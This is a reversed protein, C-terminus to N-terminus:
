KKKSKNDNSDSSVDVYRASVSLLTAEFLVESQKEGKAEIYDGLRVGNIAIEDTKLVRVVTQGDVSGVILEPPDILTNIELVQGNMVHDQDSDSSQNKNKKEDDKDKAHAVTAEFVAMDSRALLGPLGAAGAIVAGFLLARGLHRLHALSM